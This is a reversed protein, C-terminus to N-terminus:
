PKTEAKAPRIFLRYEIDNRRPLEPLVERIYKTTISGTNLRVIKHGDHEIDKFEYNM